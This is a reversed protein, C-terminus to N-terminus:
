KLWFGHLIVLFRTFLSFLFPVKNFLSLATCTLNFYLSPRMLRQIKIKKLRQLCDTLVHNRWSECLVLRFIKYSQIYIYILFYFCYNLLVLQLPLSEGAPNLKLAWTTPLSVAFNLLVFFVRWKFQWYHVIYNSYM